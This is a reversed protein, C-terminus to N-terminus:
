ALTWNKSTITAIQEETLKAKVDTHLTLTQATEVPALGDIISQISAFSLLPSYLFSISVPISGEKFEVDVLNKCNLFAHLTNTSSSIDMKGLISILNICDRFAQAFSTYNLIFDTLDIIVVSSGYFVTSFAVSQGTPNNCQLKVNRLNKTKYCFNDGWTSVITADVNKGLFVDLDTPSGFDVNYFARTVSVMYHFRDNVVGVDYGEVLSGVASTLDADDNGTKENATDILTQIQNRVQEATIM